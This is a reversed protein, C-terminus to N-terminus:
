QKRGSRSRSRRKRRRSEPARSRGKSKSKSRDRRSSKSEEARRRRREAASKEAQIESRSPMEDMLKDIIYLLFLAFPLIILILFVLKLIAM